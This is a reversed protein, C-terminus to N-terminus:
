VMEVPRVLSSFEEDSLIGRAVTADRLSCDNEHAFKAIEAARDYGLRPSLATVLM